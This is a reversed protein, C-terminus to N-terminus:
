QKINKAYKVDFNFTAEDKKYEILASQYDEGVLHIKYNKKKMEM